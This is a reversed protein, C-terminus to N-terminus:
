GAEDVDIIASVAVSQTGNESFHLYIRDGVRVDMGFSPKYINAGQISGSTLIASSITGMAIIGMADNTTFQGTPYLSVEVLLNDNNAPTASLSLIIQVGLIRGNRRIDIQAAANATATATAQLKYTRVM